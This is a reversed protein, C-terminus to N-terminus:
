DLEARRNKIQRYWVSGKLQKKAFRLFRKETRQDTKKETLHGFMVTDGKVIDMYHEQARDPEEYKVATTQIQYDGMFAIRGETVTVESKKILNKEFYVMVQTIVVEDNIEKTNTYEGAVAVYKGPELNLAYLVGGGSFNSPILSDQSFPDIGEDAKVFYLKSPRDSLFSLVPDRFSVM